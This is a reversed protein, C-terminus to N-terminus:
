RAIRCRGSIPAPATLGQVKGLNKEGGLAARAQALLQEVKADGAARAVFSGLTLLLSMVYMILRQM